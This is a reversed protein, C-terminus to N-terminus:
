MCEFCMSVVSKALGFMKKDLASPPWALSPSKPREVSSTPVNASGLLNMKNSM